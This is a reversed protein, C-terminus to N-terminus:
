KYIVGYVFRIAIRYYCAILPFYGRDAAKQLLRTRLPLTKNKMICGNAEPFWRKWRRYDAYRDSILLPLKINLKLFSLGNEGWIEEKGKEKLFEETEKLNETVQRRHAESYIKTLSSGNEQRYHYLPRNLYVAKEACAFLGITVAMDEGMDLGEKFRIGNKEYLSRKAAFLWLNWRMTGEAIKRLAEEPGAFGPQNMERERNPFELYWKCGVIDADKEEAERALLSIANSEIRDDADVYYIYDGTANELGTNRAAAVGRNKGHGLIKVEAEEKGKRGSAFRELCERSGDSSGDDVFILELNRYSQGELSELCNQLTKEANYVPVIISFKLKTYTM